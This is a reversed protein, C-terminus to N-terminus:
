LLRVRIDELKVESVLYARLAMGTLADHWRLDRYPRTNLVEVVANTILRRGEVFNYFALKDGGGGGGDDLSVLVINDEVMVKLVERVKPDGESSLCCVESWYGYFEKEKNMLVHVYTRYDMDFVDDCHSYKTYHVYLKGRRTMGLEPELELEYEDDGEELNMAFPIERWEESKIDFYIMFRKRDEWFNLFKEEDQRRGLWHVAGNVFHGNGHFDIDLPVQPIKRWTKTRTTYIIGEKTTSKSNIVIVKYDDTTSDHGFGFAVEYSHYEGLSAYIRPPLTLYDDKRCPNWIYLRLYKPPDGADNIDYIQVLLLGNCSGLIYAYTYPSKFPYDMEVPKNLVNYNDGYGDGDVWDVNPLSFLRQDRLTGSNVDSRGENNNKKKKVVLVYICLWVENFRPKLGMKVAIFPEEFNPLRMEGWKESKIYLYYLVKPRM